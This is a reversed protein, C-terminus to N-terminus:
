IKSKTAFNEVTLLRLLYIIKVSKTKSYEQYNILFDQRSNRRLIQLFLDSYIILINWRIYTM